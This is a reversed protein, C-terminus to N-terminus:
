ETGPPPPVERETLPWLGVEQRLEYATRALELEASIVASEAAFRQSLADAVEYPTASGLQERHVVDAANASAETAQMHAQALATRRSMLRACLGGISKELARSAQVALLRAERADARHEEMEALRRGGEFITM